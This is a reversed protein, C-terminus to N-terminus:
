LLTECRNALMFRLSQLLLPELDDPNIKWNDPDFLPRAQRFLIFQPSPHQIGTRAEM